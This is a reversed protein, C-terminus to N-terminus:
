VSNWKLGRVHSSPSGSMVGYNFPALCGVAKSIMRFAFANLAETCFCRDVVSWSGGRTLLDAISTFYETMGVCSLCELIRYRFPSGDFLTKRISASFWHSGGRELLIRFLNLQPGMSIRMVLVRPLPCSAAWSAADNRVKKNFETWDVKGVGAAVIVGEDVQQPRGPAAPPPPLPLDEDADVVDNSFDDVTPKTHDKSVKCYVTICEPLMNHLSAGLGTYDLAEDAGSWRHRPWLPLVSSYMTPVVDDCFKNL